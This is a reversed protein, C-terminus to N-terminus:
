TGYFTAREDDINRVTFCIQEFFVQQCENENKKLGGSSLKSEMRKKRSMILGHRTPAFKSPSIALCRAQEERVSFIRMEVGRM